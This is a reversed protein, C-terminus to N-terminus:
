PIHLELGDSDAWEEAEAIASDRDPYRGVGTQYPEPFGGMAPNVWIMVAFWGAAGEGITIWKKPEKM